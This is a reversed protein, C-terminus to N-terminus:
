KEGDRQTSMDMYPHKRPTLKVFPTWFWNFLLCRKFRHTHSVYNTVDWWCIRYEVMLKMQRGKKAPLRPLGYPM